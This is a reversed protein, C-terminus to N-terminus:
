TAEMEIAAVEWRGAVDRVQLEYALTYRAGGPGTVAVQAIVANDAATAWTLSQLSELTLGQAPPSVRAGSALDAALDSPAPALYNRLAREVVTRLAAEQVEGGAPPPQAPAAIPPGVFAPYGALSIAGGPRHLVPVTLYLLGQPETEVAISYIRLDPQPEREQVVQEFLVQQSGQPPPQTGAELELGAGGFQELARRRAEPDGQRWSLYARAFLSAFGEAEPDAPSVGGGHRVFTQPRPPVMAIRASAILGAAATARLLWRPLDQLIRIRRLPTARLSVNAAQSRRARSM